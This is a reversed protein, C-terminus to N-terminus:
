KRAGEPLLIAVIGGVGMGISALAHAWSEAGGVHLAALLMALGAYTSPERLRAGIWSAEQKAAASDINMGM